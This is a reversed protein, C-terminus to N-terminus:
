ARHTYPSNLQVNPLHAACAITRLPSKESLYPLARTAISRAEKNAYDLDASNAMINPMGGLDSLLSVQQVVYSDVVGEILDNGFLTASSSLRPDRRGTDFFERVSRIMAAIPKQKSLWAPDASVPTLQDVSVAGPESSFDLLVQRDTGSFALTRKRQSADRELAVHIDLDEHRYHILAQGGGRRVEIGHSVVKYEGITALIINSIHPLVDYILPVSSDYSKSEGYRVESASDAWLIHLSSFRSGALWDERFRDLYSAFLFTNTCFLQLGLEAATDILSLTERRSFSMPKECVVNYGSALTDEVATKHLYASNVVFAVGTKTAPCPRLAAGVRIKTGLGSASLWRRLDADAPDGQIQVIADAPLVACLEAAILRAWRRTGVILWNDVIAM